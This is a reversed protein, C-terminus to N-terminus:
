CGGLNGSTTSAARTKQDVVWAWLARSARGFGRKVQPSAQFNRAVPVSTQVARSLGAAKRGTPNFIAIGPADRSPVRRSPVVSLVVILEGPVAEGAEAVGAAAIVRAM